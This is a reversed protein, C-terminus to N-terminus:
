KMKLILVRYVSKCGFKWNMLLNMTQKLMIHAEERCFRDKSNGM